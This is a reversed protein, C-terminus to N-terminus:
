RKASSAHAFLNVATEHITAFADSRFQMCNGGISLRNRYVTARGGCACASYNRTGRVSCSGHVGKVQRVVQVAVEGAFVDVEEDGGIGALGFVPVLVEFVPRIVGCVEVPEAVPFGQRVVLVGRMGVEDGLAQAHKGFQRRAFAANDDGAGGCEALAEARLGVEVAVTDVEANTVAEFAVVEDVAKFLRAVLVGDM